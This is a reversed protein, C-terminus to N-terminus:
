LMSDSIFQGRQELFITTGSGWPYDIGLVWDKKPAHIATRVEEALFFFFVRLAGLILEDQGSDYVFLM